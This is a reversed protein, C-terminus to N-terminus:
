AHTRLQHAELEARVRKYMQNFSIIGLVHSDMIAVIREALTDVSTIRTGRM